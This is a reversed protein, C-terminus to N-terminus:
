CRFFDICYAVLVTSLMGQNLMLCLKSLEKELDINVSYFLKFHKTNEFITDKFKHSGRRTISKNKIIMFANSKDCTQGYTQTMQTLVYELASKM